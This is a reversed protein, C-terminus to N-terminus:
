PKFHIYVQKGQLEYEFRSSYSLGKLINELSEDKFKGSVMLDRPVLNEFVIDVGFWNELKLSAREFPTNKFILTKNMWSLVQEVDFREKKWGSDQISAIIGEGPMLTEEVDGNKVLVVGTMLSISVSEEPFSSINFSTGLATTTITGTQVVFPKSKDHAVEFFAEGELQLLRLSDTFGKAYSIKSGSNLFVKSGDELTITSKVGPPAQHVEMEAIPSVIETEELQITKTLFFGATAILILIAVAKRKWAIRSKKLQEQEYQKIASWSDLNVVKTDSQEVTEEEIKQSIGEWLDNKVTESIQKKEHPLHILIKRALEIEKIKEPHKQLFSEWYARAEPNNKFIWDRFEPDLVFDEVTYNAKSM